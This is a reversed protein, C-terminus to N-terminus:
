RLMRASTKYSETLDLNHRDTADLCDRVADRYAAIDSVERLVSYDVIDESRDIRKHTVRVDLEYSYQVFYEDIELLECMKRTREDYRVLDDTFLLDDYTLRDDYVNKVNDDTECIEVFVKQCPHENCLIEFDEKTM